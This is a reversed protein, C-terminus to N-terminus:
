SKDTSLNPDPKGGGYWEVGGAEQKVTNKSLKVAADFQGQRILERVSQLAQQNTKNEYDRLIPVIIQALEPFTDDLKPIAKYLEPFSMGPQLSDLVHQSIIQARNEDITGDALRKKLMEVVAVEIQQRLEDPTM